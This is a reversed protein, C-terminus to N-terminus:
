RQPGCNEKYCDRMDTINGPELVARFELSLILSVSKLFYYFALCFFVFHGFSFEMCSWDRPVMSPHPTEMTPAMSPHPMEMAPVMSPHPM